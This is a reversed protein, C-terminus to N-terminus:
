LHNHSIRRSKRLLCTLRGHNMLMDTYAYIAKAQFYTWTIGNKVFIEGFTFAFTRELFVSLSRTFVWLRRLWILGIMKFSQRHFSPLCLDCLGRLWILGIMKFSRCLWSSSVFSKWNWNNHRFLICSSPM